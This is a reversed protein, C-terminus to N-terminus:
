QCQHVRSLWFLTILCGLSLSIVPQAKAQFPLTMELLSKV